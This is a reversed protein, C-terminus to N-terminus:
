IHILSLIKEGADGELEVAIMGYTSLVVETALSNVGQLNGPMQEFTEDSLPNLYKAAVHVTGNYTDGNPLVFSNGSFDVTTIVNTGINITGGTQSDLTQDFLKELLQIKVYSETNEKPFFRRSGEFFGDMDATLYTGASNLTIDNYFFHGFADTTTNNNGLKISVDPM